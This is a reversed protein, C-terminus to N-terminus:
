GGALVAVWIDEGGILFQRGFIRRLGIDQCGDGGLSFSSGLYVGGGNLVAM